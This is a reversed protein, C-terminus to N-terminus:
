LFMFTSCHGTQSVVPSIEVIVGMSYMSNDFINISFLQLHGNSNKWTGFATTSKWHGSQSVVPSIKVIVGL